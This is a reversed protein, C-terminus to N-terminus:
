HKRSRETVNGPEERHPSETSEAMRESRTMECDIM